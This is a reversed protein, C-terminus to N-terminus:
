FKLIVRGVFNLSTFINFFSLFRVTKVFVLYNGLFGFLKRSFQAKENGKDM